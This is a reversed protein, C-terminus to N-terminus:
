SEDLLHAYPQHRESVVGGVEVDDLDYWRECGDTYYVTFGPEGDHCEPCVCHGTRGNDTGCHHGCSPSLTSSVEVVATV